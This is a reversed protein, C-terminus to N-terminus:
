GPSLETGSPLAETYPEAQPSESPTEWKKLREQSIYGHQGRYEGSLIEVEIWGGRRGTARVKTGKHLDATKRAHDPASYFGSSWADDRVVGLWPFCDPISDPPPDSQAAFLQAPASAWANGSSELTRDENQGHTPHHEHTPM